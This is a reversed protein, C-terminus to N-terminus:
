DLVPVVGLIRAIVSKLSTMHNQLSFEPMYARRALLGDLIAFLILSMEEPDIGRFEQLEIGQVIINKLASRMAIDADVFAKNVDRNRAAESIIETWLRPEVPYGSKTVCSNILECLHELAPGSYPERYAQLAADTADNVIAVILANKGSFHNYMAGQSIGARRAIDGISTSNFGKGSFCLAAAHLIRSRTSHEMVPNGFHIVM